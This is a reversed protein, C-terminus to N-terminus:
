DPLLASALVPYVATNGTMWAELAHALFLGGFAQDLVNLGGAYAGFAPMVVRRGDAAFCKRRISEARQAIRAAPHLHGAIEHGTEGSSPQHRFTVGSLTLSPAVIGGLTGPLDPDHNGAIWYWERGQQLRNLEDRDEAVLREASDNRHFSDGLAIVRRPLLAGILAALRRLTARTDYPPLLMGRRAFAAGKELHLDAVVLTAEAGWYLAGAPLPTFAHGGVMIFGSLDRAFHQVSKRQAIPM